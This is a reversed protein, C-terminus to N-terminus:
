DERKDQMNEIILFEATLLMAAAALFMVTTVATRDEFLVTMDFFAGLQVALLARSGRGAGFHFAAVYYFAATTAALALIEPAFNWLIPDNSNARYCFVLWYCFFLAALASATRAFSHVSGDPKGPLFPFCLGALIGAAGLLRQMLPYSGFDSFFMLVCSAAAFGAGFIWGLVRPIATRSRLAAADRSCSYRGLWGYTLGVIVAAALFIYVLFVVTTGHGSIPLGSERDFANTIQLWRFFAGFIGLVLTTVTVTTATKRM